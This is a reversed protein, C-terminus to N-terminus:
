PPHPSLLIEVVMFLIHSNLIGSEDRDLPIQEHLRNRDPIILKKTSSFIREYEALM